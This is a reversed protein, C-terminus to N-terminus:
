LSSSCNRGKKEQAKEIEELTATPHLRCKKAEDMQTLRQYEFSLAKGVSERPVIGLKYAQFALPLNTPAAARIWDLGAQVKDSDEQAEQALEFTLAKEVSEGPVIGLNYARVALHLNTPAATRIYNLDAPVKDIDEQDRLRHSEFIMAKEVSRLPVIELGLKLGLKYTWAALYVHTPAAARIWAVGAEAVLFLIGVLAVTMRVKNALSMRKHMKEVPVNEYTM